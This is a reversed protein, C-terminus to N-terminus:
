RKELQHVQTRDKVKAQQFSEELYQINNGLFTDFALL